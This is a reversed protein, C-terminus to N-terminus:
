SYFHRELIRNIKLKKHRTFKNTSLESISHNKVSEVPLKWNSFLIEISSVSLKNDNYQDINLEMFKLSEKIFSCLNFSLDCLESFEEDKSKPGLL